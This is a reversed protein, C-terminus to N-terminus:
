LLFYLEWPSCLPSLIKIFYLLAENYVIMTDQLLNKKRKSSGWSFRDCIIHYFLHSEIKINVRTELLSRAIRLITNYLTGYKWLYSGCLTDKKKIWFNYFIRITAAFRLKQNSQYVSEDLCENVKPNRWQFSWLWCYRVALHTVVNQRNSLSYICVRFGDLSSMIRTIKMWFSLQDLKVIKKRM